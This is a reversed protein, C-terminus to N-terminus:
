IMFKGMACIKSLSARGMDCKFAKQLEKVSPLYENKNTFEVGKNIFLLILGQLWCVQM